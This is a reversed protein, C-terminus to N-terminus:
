GMDVKWPSLWNKWFLEKRITLMWIDHAGRVDKTYGVKTSPYSSLEAVYGLASYPNIAGKVGNKEDVYCWEREHWVVGAKFADSLVM